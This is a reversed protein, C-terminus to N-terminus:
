QVLVSGPKAGAKLVAQRAYEGMQEVARRQGDPVFQAYIDMTTSIRSHRMQGQVSKPDAGAQVMWTACSTRLSRWNVHSLGLKEAAPKIHRRLVNGDRMPTGKYVSQFVLDDPESSKVVKCQRLACGARVDVTLRKLQQIREIVEPRVAITAASGATKTCSWDGRCFRQEITISDKHICRWRLGALESVRLGTWVAVYVMTSYPEAMLELIAHFEPPYLFPKAQKGRKDPPLRLNDLPNKTIYGYRVASRMISSLADRIKSATPYSIGRSPMGSFYRQLRAADMDGLTNEDFAPYLHKVIM